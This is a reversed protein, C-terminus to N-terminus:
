IAVQRRQANLEFLFELVELHRKAEARDIGWTYLGHGRLLVGHCNPNARLVGRLEGSMSLMDQSNDLIPIREEHEHTKVGSLGKLMEYGWLVYEDGPVLSAITNWVSHTHVAVTADTEEYIVVHLLTEASPSGFGSLKSGSSDVILLDSAHISGKDVGSPSISLELPDRSVLESFNGGTGPAWGRSHIWRILESLDSRVITDVSYITGKM